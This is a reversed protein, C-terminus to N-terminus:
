NLWKAQNPKAEGHWQFFVFAHPYLDKWEQCAHLKAEFFEQEPHQRSIGNTNQHHVRNMFKTFSSRCIGAFGLIENEAASTAMAASFQEAKLMDEPLSQPVRSQTGQRSGCSLDCEERLRSTTWLWSSCFPCNWISIQHVNLKNKPAKGFQFVGIELFQAFWWTAGRKTNLFGYIRVKPVQVPGLCSQVVFYSVASLNLGSAVIYIM